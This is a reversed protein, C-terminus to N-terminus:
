NPLATSVLSLLDNLLLEKTGYSFSHLVLLMMCEAFQGTAVHYKQM